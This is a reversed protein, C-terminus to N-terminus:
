KVVKKSYQNDDPGYGPAIYGTPTYPMSGLDGQRASKLKADDKVLNKSGAFPEKVADIPTKDVGKTNAKKTVTLGKYLDELKSM